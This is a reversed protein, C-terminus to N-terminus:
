KLNPLSSPTQWCIIPSVLGFLSSWVLCQRTQGSMGVPGSVAQRHLPLDAWCCPNTLTGRCPRREAAGIVSDHELGFWFHSERLKALLQGRVWPKLRSQPVMQAPSLFSLGKKKPLLLIKMDLSEILSGTGKKTCLSGAFLSLSFRCLWIFFFPSFTYNKAFKTPLYEPSSTETKRLSNTCCNTHHTTPEAIQAFQSLVQYM